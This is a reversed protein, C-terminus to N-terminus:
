DEPYCMDRVVTPLNDFYPHNLAEKATIRRRPDIALMKSLLDVLLPDDTGLIEGLNVPSHDPAVFKGQNIDSFGQIVDDSPTGLIQFVQHAMDIDSDGKFLVTGSAMEAIVCGASWVDVAVEYFENHLLLEPSRYWQTVVGRALKTLPLTFSRALGFDCIKLRGEADILLNAPKIDRHIVRHTHLYYIGCLLQYAYSCCLDPKLPVGKLKALLKYLDSPLFELILTLSTPHISAEYFKVINCHDMRRLISVERLTTPSIGEAENTLHIVKAAFPEGTEKDLVRYVIGYTGEGLKATKVFRSEDELM